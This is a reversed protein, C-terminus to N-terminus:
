NKLTIKLSSYIERETREEMVLLEIKNWQWQIQMLSDFLDNTEINTKFTILYVFSLM